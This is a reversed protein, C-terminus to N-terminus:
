LPAYMAWSVLYFQRGSMLAYDNWGGLRDETNGTQDTFILSDTPTLDRVALWIDRMAPTYIPEDSPLNRGIHPVIELWNSFLGVALGVFLGAGVNQKWKPLRPAVRLAEFASILILFVVVAWTFCVLYGGPEYSFFYPGLLVIAAFLKWAEHGIRRPE